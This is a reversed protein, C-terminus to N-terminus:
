RPRSLVLAPLPVLCCSFFLNKLSLFAMFIDTNSQYLMSAEVKIDCDRGFSKNITEELLRLHKPLLVLLYADAVEEAYRNVFEFSVQPFYEKQDVQCSTGNGATVTRASLLSKPSRRSWVGSSSKLNSQKWSAPQSHGYSTSGILSSM